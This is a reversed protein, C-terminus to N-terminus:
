KKSTGRPTPPTPPSPPSSPTPSQPADIVVMVRKALEKALGIRCGCGGTAPNLGMVEIICPEGLRVVRVRANPRLGMARLMAADRVDMCTECVRGIQDLSMQTVAVKIQQCCGDGPNDGAPKGEPNARQQNGAETPVDMQIMFAIM